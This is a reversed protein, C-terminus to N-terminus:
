KQYKWNRTKGESIWEVATELRRARTDQTKAGTIWAVYERRASPSFGEWATTAKKNSKLERTLDAPTLLSKKPPGKIREAKVGTDNLKMAQKIYGSLQTRSPLDRVAAIRGLSGASADTKSRVGAILAGKWFGFACHEKFAAMSAMMEGKYDFHPSSWKM